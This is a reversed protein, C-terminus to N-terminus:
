WTPLAYAFFRGDPSYQYMRAPVDPAEFGDVPEYDSSGNVLGM